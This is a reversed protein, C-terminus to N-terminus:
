RRGGPGSREGPEGTDDQAGEPVRVQWRTLNRKRVVGYQLDGAAFVVRELAHATGGERPFVLWARCADGAVSQGYCYYHFPQRATASYDLDETHRAAEVPVDRRPPIRWVLPHDGELLHRDQYTPVKTDVPLAPITETSWRLELVAPAQACDSRGETDVDAAQLRVLKGTDAEREYVAWGVLQWPVQDPPTDPSIPRGDSPWECLVMLGPSLEPSWFWTHRAIPYPLTGILVHRFIRHSVALKRALNAAEEPSPRPPPPPPPRPPPEAAPRPPREAAATEARPPAPPPSPSSASTARPPGPQIVPPRECAVALAVLAFAAATSAARPQYAHSCTTNAGM